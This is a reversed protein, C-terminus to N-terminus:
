IRFFPLFLCTLGGDGKWFESIDIEITEYGERELLKATRSYGQPILIKGKGLNIMNNAYLEEPPIEIINFGRFFKPNVYQSTLVVTENGLYQCVAQLHFLLPNDGSLPIRKIEMDPLFRSLQHIGGRNTRPTESVFILDRDTVVINGGELIGPAEIRKIEMEPMNKRFFEEISREEGRRSEIGFRHLIVMKREYAILAADHVFCSDPYEELPELEIVRIGHEQLIKKYERHQRIARNLNIKSRHPNSSVCNLYSKSPPRVIAMDFLRDTKFM